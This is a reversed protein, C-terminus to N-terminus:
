ACWPADREADIGYRELAQACLAPDVTGQRRLADLAALVVHHRDVEFFRRLAAARTAAASATPAWCASRRRSTAPWSDAALRVRLREGGGGAHRRAPLQQLHSTRATATPHLRNWRATERADRALESWSTVSFVESALAEDALLQGRRDSRTLIAGSGLLTM